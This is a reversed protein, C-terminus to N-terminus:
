ALEGVIWEPDVLRRAGSSLPRNTNSRRLASILSRRIMVRKSTARRQLRRGINQRRARVPQLRRDHRRQIIPRLRSRMLRKGDLRRVTLRPRVVLCVMMRRGRESTIPRRRCAVQGLSRRRAHNILRRCLLRGIRRPRRLRSPWIMSCISCAVAKLRRVRKLFSRRPM